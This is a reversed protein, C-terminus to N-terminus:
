SGYVRIEILEARLGGNAAAIEVKLQKTTVEDALRHIRKRKYNHHESALLVWEQNLLAYIRYSRAVEPIAEFPTRHHHLNILDENVDDNFTVHIEKVRKEGDWDLRVWEPNNNKLPESM